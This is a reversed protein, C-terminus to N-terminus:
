RRVRNEAAQWLTRAGALFFPALDDRAFWAAEDAGRLSALWSRMSLSGERRYGLAAIPDYNEVVMTRGPMAEGATIDRGTLDL